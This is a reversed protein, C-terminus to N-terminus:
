RQQNHPSVLLLFFELVFTLLFLLFPPPFSSPIMQLLSVLVRSKGTLHVLGRGGKEERSLEMLWKWKAEKWKCCFTDDGQRSQLAKDDRHRQKRMVIGQLNTWWEYSGGVGGFWLVTNNCVTVEIRLFQLNGMKLAKGSNRFWRWSEKLLVLCLRLLITINVELNLIIWFFGSVKLPKCLPPGCYLDTSKSCKITDPRHQPM